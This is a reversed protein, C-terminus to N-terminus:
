FSYAAYKHDGGDQGQMVVPMPVRAMTSDGVLSTTGARKRRHQLQQQQRLYYLTYQRAQNWTEIDILLRLDREISRELSAYTPDGIKHGRCCTRVILRTENLVSTQNSLELCRILVKIFVAFTIRHRILDKNSNTINSTSAQVHGNPRNQGNQSESRSHFGHVVGYSDSYMEPQWQQINNPNM